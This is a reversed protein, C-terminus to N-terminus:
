QINEKKKTTCLVIKIRKAACVCVCEAISVNFVHKSVDMKWVSIFISKTINLLFCVVILYDVSFTM